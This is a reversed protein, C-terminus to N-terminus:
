GQSKGYNIFVYCKSDAKESVYIRLKKHRTKDVPYAVGRFFKKFALTIWYDPNPKLDPGLLGYHSSLFAESYSNIRCSKIKIRGRMVAKIGYEAAM